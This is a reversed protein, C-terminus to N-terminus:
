GHRGRALASSATIQPHSGRKPSTGCIKAVRKHFAELRAKRDSKTLSSLHKEIIENLSEAAGEITLPKAQVRGKKRTKMVGEQVM